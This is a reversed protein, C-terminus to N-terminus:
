DIAVRFFVSDRVMIPRFLWCFCGENLTHTMQAVNLEQSIEKIKEKLAKAEHIDM